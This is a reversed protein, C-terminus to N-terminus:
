EVVFPRSTVSWQRDKKSSSSAAVRIRYRGPNQISWTEQIVAGPAVPLPAASYVAQCIDASYGVWRGRENRDLTAAVRPGCAAVYVVIAGTNTVAFPIDSGRQFTREATAIRLDTLEPATSSECGAQSLLMSVALLVKRM